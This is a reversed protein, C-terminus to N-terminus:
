LFSMSNTTNTSLLPSESLSDGRSEVVDYLISDNRANALFGGISNWSMHPIVGTDHKGAILMFFYIYTASLHSYHLMEYFNHLM